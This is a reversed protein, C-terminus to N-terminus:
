ALLAKARFCREQTNALAAVAAGLVCPVVSKQIEKSLFVLSVFSGVEYQKIKSLLGSLSTVNYLVGIKKYSLSLLIALMGGIYFPPPVHLVM